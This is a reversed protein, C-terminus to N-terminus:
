PGYSAMYEWNHWMCETRALRENPKLASEELCQRFKEAGGAQAVQPSVSILALLAAFATTKCTSIKMM